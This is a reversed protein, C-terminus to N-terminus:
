RLELSFYLSLKDETGTQSLLHPSSRCIQLINNGFRKNTQVPQEKLERKMLAYCERQDRNIMVYESLVNIGSQSAKLWSDTFVNKLVLSEFFRFHRQGNIRRPNAIDILKTKGESVAILDKKCLRRVFPNVFPYSVDIRDVLVMLDMGQISGIEIRYLVIVQAIPPIRETLDEDVAKGKKFTM